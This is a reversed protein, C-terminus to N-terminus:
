WILDGLVTICGWIVFVWHDIQLFYAQFMLFGLFRYTQFKGVFAHNLAHFIFFFICFSPYFHTVPRLPYFGQLFFPPFHCFIKIPSKILRISLSLTQFSKSFTNSCTLILHKLFSEVRNESSRFNTEILRFVCFWAM